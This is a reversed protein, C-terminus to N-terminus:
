RANQIFENIDQNKLDNLIRKYYIQLEEIGYIKHYRSTLYKKSRTMLKKVQGSDKVLLIIKPDIM